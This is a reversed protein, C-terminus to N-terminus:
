AVTEHSAVSAEEQIQKKLRAVLPYSVIGPLSSLLNVALWLLAVAAAASHAAETEMGLDAYLRSLLFVMAAERTGLGGPSIPLVSALFVIPVVLFMSGIDSKAGVALSLQDVSLIAAAQAGISLLFTAVLARYNRMFGKTLSAIDRLRAAWLMKEYRELLGALLETFYLGIGGGGLFAIVMGWISYAVKQMVGDARNFVAVCSAVLLLALLGVYRDLVVSLFAKRQKASRSLYYAKVFDGGIGAPLFYNCFLGLFHLAVLRRYSAQVEVARALEQWRKVGILYSIFILVFSLVVHKPHAALLSEYVNRVGVRYLVLSLIGLGMILKALLLITSRAKERM